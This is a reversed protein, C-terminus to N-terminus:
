EPRFVLQLYLGDDQISYTPSETVSVAAKAYTLQIDLSEAPRWAIGFGYGFLEPVDPDGENDRLVAGDAFVSLSLDKRGPRAGLGTELIPREFEITAQAGYDAVARNKRYGRVSGLGGAAFKKTVFATSELWQGAARVTVSLGDEDLRRVYQAQAKALLYADDPTFIGVGAPLDAQLGRELTFLAAWVENEERNSVQLGVVGSWFETTGDVAGPSLSFPVGNLETTSIDYSVGVSLTAKFSRAVGNTTILPVSLGTEVNFTSSVIDLASVPLDLLSSHSGNLDLTWRLGDATLPVAYEIRADVAGDTAGAGLTL